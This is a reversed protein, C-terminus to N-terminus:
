TPIRLWRGRRFIYESDCVLQLDALGAHVKEGDELRTWVWWWRGGRFRHEVSLGDIVQAHAEDDPM